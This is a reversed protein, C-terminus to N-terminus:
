AGTTGTTVTFGMDALRENTLGPGTLMNRVAFGADDDPEATLTVDLGPVDENNWTTDGYESITASPMLRVFYIADAGAGDRAIALFRYNIKPPTLAQDVTVTGTESDLNGQMNPQNYVLGLTAANTELFKVQMTTTDKTIDTRVPYASGHGITESNDTERAWTIGDDGDVWGIPSYGDPLATLEGNALDYVTDVLPASMPAIFLASAVAKFINGRKKSALTDFSPM